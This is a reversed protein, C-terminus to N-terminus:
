DTKEGMMERILRVFEKDPRKHTGLTIEIYGGLAKKNLDKM